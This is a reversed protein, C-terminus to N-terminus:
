QHNLVVRAAAMNRVATPNAVGVRQLETVTSQLETKTATDAPQSKAQETLTSLKQTLQIKKQLQTAAVLKPNASLAKQLNTQAAAENGLAFQAEALTATTQADRIPRASLKAVDTQLSARLQEDNPNQALQATKTAITIASDSIQISQISPYGIMVIPVMFFLLLGAYPKDRFVNRLFAILLVIFLVVGLVLLVEEFPYLGDTLKVVM